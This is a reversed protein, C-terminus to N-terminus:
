IRCTSAASTAWSGFWDRWGAEISRRNAITWGLGDKILERRWCLSRWVFSPNSGLGAQMIDGSRFYRAKFVKCVLSNPLAIMRWIQKAVLAQNFCVFRRFGLGGDEKSRCLSDWSRWHLGGNCDTNGWWFKACIMELERSLSTPVRFCAMAYTPIAQLVAKILVENGGKSFQKHNWSDVRKLMREKLYGFQVIKNKLSFSPAGLSLEHSRSKCIKLYHKVREQNLPETKPSFSLALKEFNIIQGSAQEFTDLCEKVYKCTNLDAKFFMLSDDAFFLHTISPGRSSM